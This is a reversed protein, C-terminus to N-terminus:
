HYASDLKNKTLYEHDLIPRNMSHHFESDLALCAMVVVREEFACSPQSGVVSDIPLGASSCQPSVACQM